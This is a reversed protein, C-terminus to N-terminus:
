DSGEAKASTRVTAGETLLHAGLAVVAQGVKIGSVVATEEGLRKIEVPAFRVATGDQDLLWVGTRNGDDLVAGIPVEVDSHQGDVTLRITVTAGLPASAAEGDLVYRAEYTRTQADASNAIQRLRATGRQGNSGYVSAEATSGISPRITEPLSVLAERPGAHALQVV